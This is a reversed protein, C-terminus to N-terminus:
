EVSLGVCVPRLVAQSSGDGAFLVALAENVINETWAM